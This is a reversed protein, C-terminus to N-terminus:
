KPQEPPESHLVLASFMRTLEANSFKGTIRASTAVESRVVPATIMKGDLLVAMPKGVHSKTAEALRKAASAEIQVTVEVRGSEDRGFTVSTVDKDTLVSEKHLYVTPGDPIVAKTLGDVREPEALRFSLGPREKPTADNAVLSESCLALLIMVGLRIPSQFM